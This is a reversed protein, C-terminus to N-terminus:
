LLVSFALVSFTYTNRIFCFIITDVSNWISFNQQALTKSSQESNDSLSSHDSSFIVIKACFSHSIM